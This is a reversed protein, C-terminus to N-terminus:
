KILYPSEVNGDGSRVIIDKSIYVVPYIRRTSAANSYGLTNSLYYVQYTNDAVATLLWTTIEDKAFYNRNVCEENDYRVCANDLSANKYDTIRLLGIKENPQTILCEIADNSDDSIKNKGVCIDKAVIM